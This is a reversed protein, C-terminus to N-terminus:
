ERLRGAKSLKKRTMIPSARVSQTQGSPLEASKSRTPISLVPERPSASATEAAENVTRGTAIRRGSMPVVDVVYVISLESSVDIGAYHEM